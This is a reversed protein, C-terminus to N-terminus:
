KKRARKKIRELTKPSIGLVRYYARGIPGSYREWLYKPLRYYVLYLIGLCSGFLALLWVGGMASGGSGDSLIDLAALNLLTHDQKM